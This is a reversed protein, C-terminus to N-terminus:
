LYLFLFLFIFHSAGVWSDITLLPIVRCILHFFDCIKGTLSLQNMPGKIKRLQEGSEDLPSLLGCHGFITKVTDQGSDAYFETLAESLWRVHLRKREKPPVDGTQWRRSNKAFHIGFKQKMRRKLAHGLGIDTVQVLDTCHPPTFLLCVDHLAAFERIEDTGHASLNDVVLLHRNNGACPLFTFKFWTLFTLADMSGNQQCYIDVNNYKHRLSDILSNTPGHLAERPDVTDLSLKKACLTVFHQCCSTSCWCLVSADDYMRTKRDSSASTQAV